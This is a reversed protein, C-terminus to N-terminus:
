PNSPCMAEEYVEKPGIWFWSSHIGLFVGGRPLQRAASLAQREWEPSPIESLDIIPVTLQDLSV